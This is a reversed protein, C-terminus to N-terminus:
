VAPTKRLLPLLQTGGHVKKQLVWTSGLVLMGFGLTNISTAM